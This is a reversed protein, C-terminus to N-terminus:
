RISKGTLIQRVELMASYTPIIYLTEETPTLELAKNIAQNLNEELILSPHEESQQSYALRLGMDYLRDGSIVTKGPMSVLVETDVDWIWSVDTGDPIRDNLIILTVNAKGLQQMSSVTRITENLGVPNKSLLIRIKKGQVVLEEARGFAAKFQGITKKLNHPNSGLELAVTAAALTNYKNYVGILVQPWENSALKVQGKAFGCSECHYDGLHSLYVGQYDLLHGCSPCYISDVAHPIEALYLEPENLGFYLVKQSLQQGLYSLTPDDGNLVVLTNKPLHNMANQWRRSIIDIEGYRDLQDRFLNLALIVSPTVDRLLLPLINEDVELITYDAPINGWFDTKEILATVLGNILNAGTSNHVVRYGSDELMQTLLLSTTTKGNTGVILILCKIERALRPLLSPYLRLAVQGPMVSAAGLKFGRVLTTIFKSLFLTCVLRIREISPM